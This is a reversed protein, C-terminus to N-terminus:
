NNNKKIDEVHTSGSLEDDLLRNHKPYPITHKVLLLILLRTNLLNHVMGIYVVTKRVDFGQTRFM